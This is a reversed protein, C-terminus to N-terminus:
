LSLQQPSVPPEGARGDRKADDCHYSLENETLAANPRAGDRVFL